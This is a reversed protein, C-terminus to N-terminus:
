LGPHAADVLLTVSYSRRPSKAARDGSRWEPVGAEVDTGIAARRAVEDETVQGPDRM